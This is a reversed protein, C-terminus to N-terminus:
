QAGTDATRVCVSTRNITDELDEWALLGGTHTEELKRGRKLRGKKIRGKIGRKKNNEISNMRNGGGERGVYRGKREKKKEEAEKGENVEEKRGRRGAKRM